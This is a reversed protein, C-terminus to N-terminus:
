AEELVAPASCILLSPNPSHLARGFNYVAWCATRFHGSPLLSNPFCPQWNYFFKQSEVKLIETTGQVVDLADGLRM